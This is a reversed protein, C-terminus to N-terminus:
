EVSLDKLIQRYHEINPPKLELISRIVKIAVNKEKAIVLQNALRDLHDIAEKTCGVQRFLEVLRKRIFDQEPHDEVMRKLFNLAIKKDINEVVYSLYQDLEAGAQSQQGLRLNLDVLKANAKDDSPSLIRIQKYVVLAQRWDLSQVDIDAMQHLINVKQNADLDSQQALRLAETYTKRAKSLDAMDYYVNAIGMTERVATEIENGAILEQVLRERSHLDMPSLEIMHKFVEVARKDEGRVIYAQAVVALKAIAEDISGQQILLDGMYNHLPLYASAEQLIWFAEEMASRGYGLEALSRINAISGVLRGSDTNTIIEALPTLLGGTSPDPLQQRAQILYERWGPRGLLDVINKCLEDHIKENKERSITDLIPEYLQRLDDGYASPVVQSDAWRLAELYHTAAEKIRGMKFYIQGLLLNAALSFENCPACRKLSRIANQAREGKAQLLGLDYFLAPHDVGAEAAKELEDAAEKDYGRSQFDLAQSLHNNVWTKDAKATSSVVTGKIIARLGRSQMNKADTDSEKMGVTENFLMGALARLANQRAEVIPDPSMTQEGKTADLQKVQSVRLPGTGGPRLLPKPLLQKANLQALAQAAEKCGPVLELAHNVIQVAKDVQGAHQLLSALAIYEEVSAQNRGQHEYVLALRSHAMANEPNLTTVRMWCEIAKKIDHNKAFIEAAQLSIDGAKDLVGMREYIDATKELPIPDDPSVQAARLYYILADEFSQREFFALGLNILAQHNDPMEALAQRYYEAARDWAQDWAESHGQNMLRRFVDENGAV